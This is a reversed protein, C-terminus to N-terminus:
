RVAPLAFSFTSGKGPASSEIWIRGGHLEVIRQAMALGVGHGAAEPILQDFLQFVKEHYRPDIGIGNDRISCIVQGAARRAFLEIRPADTAGLFKLANDLLIQMLKAIQARDGRAKGLKGVRMEVGLRRIRDQHRHIAGRLLADLNAVEKLGAPSPGLQTFVQLEGLLEEMRTLAFRIRALDGLVGLFDRRGVDRHLLGLFGQITFLPNRLDHSIVSTLRRLETKRDLLEVNRAELEAKLRLLRRRRRKLPRISLYHLGRLFVLGFLTVGAVFVGTQHFAPRQTVRLPTGKPKGAHEWAGGREKAEVFFRYDGPALNTYTALRGDGAEIWSEDNGELRYRFVLEEPRDFRVATYRIELRRTGPPLILPSELRRPREDVTVEEAFATPTLVTPTL